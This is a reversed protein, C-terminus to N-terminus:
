CVRIIDSRESLCLLITTFTAHNSVNNFVGNFYLIM